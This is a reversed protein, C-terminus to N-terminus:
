SRFIKLDNKLLGGLSNGNPLGYNQFEQPKLRIKLESGISLTGMDGAPHENTSVRGGLRDGSEFITIPLDTNRRIWYAATLGALGGGIIAM